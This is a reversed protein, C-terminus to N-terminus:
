EISFQGVKLTNGAGVDTVNYRTFKVPSDVVFLIDGPTGSHTGFVFWLDGFLSGELTVTFASAGVTRDVQLAHKSFGRTGSSTTAGAGNSTINAVSRALPEVFGEVIQEGRANHRSM